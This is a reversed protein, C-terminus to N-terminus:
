DGPKSLVVQIREPEEPKQRLRNDLQYDGRALLGRIIELSVENEVSVESAVPLALSDAIQVTERWLAGAIGRRRWSERVFIAGLELCRKLDYAAGDIDQLLCFGVAEGSTRAVLVSRTEQEGWYEVFHQRSPGAMEGAFSAVSQHYQEVLRWVDNLEDSSSDVVAIEDDMLTVEVARVASM